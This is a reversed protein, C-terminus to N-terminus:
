EIVFQVSGAIISCGVPPDVVDLTAQAVKEEKVLSKKRRRKSQKRKRWQEEKPEKESTEQTTSLFSPFFPAAVFM